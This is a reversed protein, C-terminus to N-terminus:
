CGTRRTVLVSADFATLEVGISEARAEARMFGEFSWVEFTAGLEAAALFPQALLVLLALEGRALADLPQEIGARELLDVLEDRMAAGIEPHLLLDDRAVADDGAVAADVSADDVHKACSKVTKPPDSESVLAALIQM